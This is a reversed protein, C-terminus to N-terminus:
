WDIIGLIELRWLFAEYAMKMRTRFAYYMAMPRSMHFQWYYESWDIVEEEVEPLHLDLPLLTAPRTIDAGILRELRNRYADQKRRRPSRFLIQNSWDDVAPNHFDATPGVRPAKGPPFHFIVTWTCPCDGDMPCDEERDLPGAPIRRPGDVWEPAIPMLEQAKSCLLQVRSPILGCVPEKHPDITPGIGLTSEWFRWHVTMQVTRIQPCLRVLRFFWANAQISLHWPELPNVRIFASLNRVKRMIDITRPGKISRFTSPNYRGAWDVAKRVEITKNRFYAETVERKMQRCVLLLAKKCSQPNRRLCTLLQPLKKFEVRDRTERPTSAVIRQRRNYDDEKETSHVHLIFGGESTVNNWIMERLEPPLDLLPSRGTTKPLLAGKLGAYRSKIGNKLKKLSVRVGSKPAEFVSPDYESSLYRWLEETSDNVPGSMTTHFNPLLKSLNNPRLNPLNRKFPSPFSVHDLPCTKLLTCYSKPGPLRYFEQNM